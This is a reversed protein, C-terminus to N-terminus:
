VSDQPGDNWYHEVVISGCCVVRHEDVGAIRRHALTRVLRVRVSGTYLGCSLVFSVYM